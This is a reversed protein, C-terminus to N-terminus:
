MGSYGVAMQRITESDLDRLVDPTVIDCFEIAGAPFLDMRDCDWKEIPTTKCHMAAAYVDIWRLDWRTEPVNTIVLM